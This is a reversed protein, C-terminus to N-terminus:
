EAVKVKNRGTDKALYLAQDIRHIFEEVAESERYEGVGLSVTLNDVPHFSAESIQIRIREALSKAHKLETLPLLLAFEEGGWRAFTDSDRIMSRVIQVLGKLVEDGNLHGHQDNVLKFHDIDLLLLAFTKTGYRSFRNIELKLANNFSGRNGIGTLPDTLSALEFSSAKEELMGVVEHLENANARMLEAWRSYAYGALDRQTVAGILNTDSDVVVARKFKKERLYHLVNKISTQMHVTDVPSTMYASVPISTDAKRHIINIMDKTTLIGCPKGTELIVIADDAHSLHSFADLAPTDPSITTIPTKSLVEGVAKKEVLINPDISSTIDTYSIIGCLDGKDDLVGFYEDNMNIGPYIALINDDHKFCRLKRTAVNKLQCSHSSERHIFNFLDKVMFINHCERASDYFIVDRINNNAMIEVADEVTANESASIVDMHAIDGIKPFVQNQNDPAM